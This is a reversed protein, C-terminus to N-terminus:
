LKYDTIKFFYEVGRDSFSDTYHISTKELFNLLYDIDAKPIADIDITFFGELSTYQLGLIPDYYYNMIRNNKTKKARKLLSKIIKYVEKWDYEAEVLEKKCEKKFTKQRM